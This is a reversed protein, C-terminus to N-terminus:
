MSGGLQAVSGAVAADSPRCAECSRGGSPHPCFKAGPDRYASKSGALRQPQRFDVVSVDDAPHIPTRLGTYSCRHTVLHIAGKPVVRLANWPVDESGFSVSVSDLTALAPTALNSPHPFEMLPPFVPRLASPARGLNPPIPRWPEAGISRTMSTPAPASELCNNPRGGQPSRAVMGSLPESIQWFGSRTMRARGRGRAVEEPESPSSAAGGQLM